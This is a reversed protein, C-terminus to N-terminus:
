IPPYCGTTLPSCPAIPPSCAQFFNAFLVCSTVLEDEGDTCEIANDLVSALAPPLNLLAHSKDTEPLSKNFQM